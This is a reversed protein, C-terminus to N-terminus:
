LYLDKNRYVKERHGEVYEYHGEFFFRDGYKDDEIFSDAQSTAVKQQWM